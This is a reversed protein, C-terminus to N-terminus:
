SSRGVKWLKRLFIIRHIKEKVTFTSAFLKATSPRYILLEDDEVQDAGIANQVASNRASTMIEEGAQNGVNAIDIGRVNQGVLVYGVLSCSLFLVSMATTRANM